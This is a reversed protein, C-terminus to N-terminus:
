ARQDTRRKAAELAELQPNRGSRWLAEEEAPIPQRADDTIQADQPIDDTYHEINRGQNGQWV